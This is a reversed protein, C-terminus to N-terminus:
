LTLTVPQTAEFNEEDVEVISELQSNGQAFAGSARQSAVPPLSCDASAAAANDRSRLQECEAIFNRMTELGEPTPTYVAFEEEDDDEEEEEEINAAAAESKYILAAQYSAHFEQQSRHETIRAIEALYTENGVLALIAQHGAASAADTNKKDDDILCIDSKICGAGMRRDDFIANLQEVKNQRHDKDVSIFVEKALDAGLLLTLCRRIYIENDHFTAIAVRGGRKMFSTIYERIQTGNRFNSIIQDDSQWPCSPAERNLDLHTRSVTHNLTITQDFDFALILM